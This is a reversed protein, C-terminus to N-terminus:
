SATPGTGSTSGEIAKYRLQQGCGGQCECPGQGRPRLERPNILVSLGHEDRFKECSSICRIPIAM